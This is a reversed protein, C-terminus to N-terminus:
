GQCGPPFTVPLLTFPLCGGGPPPCQWHTHPCMPPVTPCQTAMSVNQGGYGGAQPCGQTHCGPYFTATPTPGPQAYGQQPPCNFQTCVTAPTQNAGGWAQQPGVCNPTACGIQTWITPHITGAQCPPPCNFQTCVTAFTQNAGGWAQQPQPPCFTTPQPCVTMPPCSTAHVHTHCGYQTCVTAPTFNAGGAYQQQQPPPPCLTTPQPCVTMPPCNTHFVHTHAGGGAQQQGPCPPNITPCPEIPTCHLTAPICNPLQTNV